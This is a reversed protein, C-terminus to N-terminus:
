SRQTETVPSRVQHLSDAVRPSLAPAFFCRHFAPEACGALVILQIGLFVGNAEHLAYKQLKGGLPLGECTAALVLEHRRRGKHRWVSSNQGVVRVIKKWIRPVPVEVVQEVIWDSIRETSSDACGRRSRGGGTHSVPVEVTVPRSGCVTRCSLLGGRPLTSREGDALQHEAHCTSNRLVGLSYQMEAEHTEGRLATVFLFAHKLSFQQCCFSLTFGPVREDLPASAQGKCVFTEHASRETWRSSCGGSPGGRVSTLSPGLYEEDSRAM